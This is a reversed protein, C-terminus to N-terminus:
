QQETAGGPGTVARLEVSGQEAGLPSEPAIEPSNWIAIDRRKKKNSEKTFSSHHEAEAATLSCM